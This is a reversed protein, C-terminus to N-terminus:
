PRHVKARLSAQMPADHNRIAKRQTAPRNNIMDLKYEYKKPNVEWTMYRRYYGRLTFNNDYLTLISVANQTYESHIKM